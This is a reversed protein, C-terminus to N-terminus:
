ATTANGQKCDLLLAPRDATTRRDNPRELQWEQHSGAGDFCNVGRGLAPFKLLYFGTM